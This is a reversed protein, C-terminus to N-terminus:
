IDSKDYLSWNLGFTYKSSHFSGSIVPIFHTESNFQAYATNINKFYIM